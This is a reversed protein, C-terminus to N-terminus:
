IHRWTRGHKIHSIVGYTVFSYFNDRIYTPSEGRALRAKIDAADAESLKALNVKSGKVQTNHVKMDDSNEQNTAWYLNSEKNNKRNGDDHAAVHLLTPQDGHFAQCIVRNVRFQTQDITCVLYGAHNTSQKALKGNPRIIQGDSRAQYRGDGIPALTM